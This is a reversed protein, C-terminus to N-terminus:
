DIWSGTIGVWAGRPSFEIWRVNKLSGLAKLTDPTFRFEKERFGIINGHIGSWVAEPTKDGQGRTPPSSEEGM